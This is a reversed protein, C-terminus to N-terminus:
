VMALCRRGPLTNKFGLYNEKQEATDQMYRGPALNLSLFFLIGSIFDMFIMGKPYGVPCLFISLFYECCM